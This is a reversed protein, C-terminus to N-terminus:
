QGESEATNLPGGIRGAAFHEMVGSSLAERVSEITNCREQPTGHFLGQRWANRQTSSLEAETSTWGGVEGFEDVESQNVLYRVFAQFTPQTPNAPDPYILINTRVDLEAEDARRLTTEAPEIILRDEVSSNVPSLLGGAPNSSGPPMFPADEWMLTVSWPQEGENKGAEIMSRHVHDTWLRSVAVLEGLNFPGSLRSEWAQRTAASIGYATMREAYEDVLSHDADDPTIPKVCFRHEMTGGSLSAEIYPQCTFRAGPEDPGKAFFSWPQEYHFSTNSNLPLDPFNTTSM